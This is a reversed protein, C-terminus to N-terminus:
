QAKKDECTIRIGEAYPTPVFDFRKEFKSSDFLYDDTYQYLMENSEKMIKMFLGLIWVMPPALTANKAPKGFEASALDCFEKGTLAPGATPLHWVQNFSDNTNGLLATAKAADSTFTFSHPFTDKGMWSPTKGDKLYSFVTFDVFTTFAKPGYFDASRAISADVRGKEVADMLMQAITARVEGKKSVPKFPTAETMWGKVKGYMYVNDFFVLKAQAEACADIVNKMVVPWQAQWVKADYPLGATLYVTSSGEVAMRVQKADLLDAPFLQDNENVAHPKRSCLRIIPSYAPLIKALENGIVGGSGLITHM